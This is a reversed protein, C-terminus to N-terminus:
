PYSASLEYSSEGAKAMKETTEATRGKTMERRREIKELGVWCCKWIVLDKERSTRPMHREVRAVRLKERAKRTPRRALGSLKTWGRLFGTRRHDRAPRSLTTAGDVTM